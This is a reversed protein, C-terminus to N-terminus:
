PSAGIATLWDIGCRGSHEFYALDFYSSDEEFRTMKCREYFPEAQPLSHLGLRGDFGEEISIRVAEAMLVTGVGLYRPSNVSGKLNWPAAELYDVYIVHGDDQRAPRPFRLVAMLGQVEGDLEVAVLMHRGAEISDAKNRWDWHAHELPVLGAAQGAAAAEERAKAWNAEIEELERQSYNRYVSAAIAPRGAFRNDLLKVWRHVLDFSM